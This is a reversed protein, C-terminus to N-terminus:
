TFTIVKITYLLEVGSSYNIIIDGFDVKNPLDSM